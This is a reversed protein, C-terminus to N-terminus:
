PRDQASLEAGKGLSFISSRLSYVFDRSAEGVEELLLPGPSAMESCGPLLPVAEKKWEDQPGLHRHGLVSGTFIDVCLFPVKCIPKLIKLHLILSSHTSSSPSFATVQSRLPPAGNGSKVLLCFSPLLPLSISEKASMPGRSGRGSVM